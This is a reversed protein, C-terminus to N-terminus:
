FSKRNQFPDKPLICFSGFVVFTNILITELKMVHIENLQKLPLIDVVRTNM